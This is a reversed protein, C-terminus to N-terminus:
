NVPVDLARATAVLLTEPDSAPEGSSEFARAARLIAFGHVTSWAITEAGARRELPMAGTAVLEDLSAALLHWPSPDEAVVGPSEIPLFAAALLNPEEHAFGLYGRGIALFRQISRTRPHTETVREVEVLMRHALEGRAMRAVDALLADRDPFHRYIAAPSVQLRRAVERLLVANPGGSRALELAAGSLARPLDGHRYTSRPLSWITGPFTSM